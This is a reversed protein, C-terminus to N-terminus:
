VTGRPLSTAAALAGSGAGAGEGGVAVSHRGSVRSNSAAINADNLGHKSEVITLDDVAFRGGGCKRLAHFAVAFTGVAANLNVLVTVLTTGVIFLMALHGVHPLPKTTDVLTSFASQGASQTRQVLARTMRQRPTVMAEAFLMSERRADTGRQRARESAEVEAWGAATEGRRTLADAYRQVAARRHEIAHEPVVAAAESDAVMAVTMRLRTADSQHEELETVASVHLSRLAETSLCADMRAQGIGRLYILVPSFDFM